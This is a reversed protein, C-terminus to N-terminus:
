PRVATLTVPVMTRACLIRWRGEFKAFLTTYHGKTPAGPPLVGIVEWTGDDIVIDPAVVRRSSSSIKAKNGQLQAFVGAYMAIIADRGRLVQGDIGVYDADPAYTEALAGADDSDHFAIWREMLEGVAAAEAEDAAAVSTERGHCGLGLGATLLFVAASILNAATRM